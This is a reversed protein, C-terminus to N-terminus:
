ERRCVFLSADGQSHDEFAISGPYSPKGSETAVEMTVAIAAATTITIITTNGTAAETIAPTAQATSIEVVTSFVVTVAPVMASTVSTTALAMALTVGTTEAGSDM